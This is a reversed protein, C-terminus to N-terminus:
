ENLTAFVTVQLYTVSTRLITTTNYWGGAIASANAFIGEKFTMKIKTHGCDLKKNRQVLFYKWFTYECNINYLPYLNLSPVPYTYVFQSLWSGRFEM